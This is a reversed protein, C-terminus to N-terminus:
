LQHDVLTKNSENSPLWDKTEAAFSYNTVTAIFIAALWLFITKMPKSSKSLASPYLSSRQKNTAVMSIGLMTKSIGIRCRTDIPLEINKSKKDIVKIQM